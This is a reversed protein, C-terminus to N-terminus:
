VARCCGGPWRSSPRDRDRQRGAATLATGSLQGAWMSMASMASGMPDASTTSCEL